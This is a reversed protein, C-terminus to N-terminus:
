RGCAPSTASRGCGTAWRSGRTSAGGTRIRRSASADRARPWRRARAPGHGGAAPRRAAGRRRRARARLGRRGPARRHRAARLAAHRWRGRAGDGVAEGVARPEHPLVHDHSAVLTVSAGLRALAQALEVGVPGAGLVLLRRPVESLGTAERSTWVGELERLGPVPPIVPDSGTALVIHAATYTEDGVAVVHPGALRGEGRLVEIGAGAAWAVQGADNYNSVQFDRWALVARVDIAGSVAEAAGPVDRAAACRRAPACCRRPRSARGTPANAASCSASWSRRRAPRGRRARQRLARRTVRRRHRDRRLRPRPGLEHRTRRSRTSLWTLTADRRVRRVQTLGQHSGQVVGTHGGSAGRALRQAAGQALQHRAQRVGQAPAM